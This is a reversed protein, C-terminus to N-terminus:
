NQIIDLGNRPLSKVIVNYVKRLSSTFRYIKYCIEHYNYCFKSKRRMLM